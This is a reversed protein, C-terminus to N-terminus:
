FKSPLEAVTSKFGFYRNTILDMEWGPKKFFGPNELWCSIDDPTVCWAGILKTDIDIELQRAWPNKMSVKTNAYTGSTSRQM